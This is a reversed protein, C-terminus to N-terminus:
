RLFPGTRKPDQLHRKGKRKKAYDDFYKDKVSDYGEKQIRKESAEKAMDMMDGLSNNKNRTKDVFEKSSMPNVRGDVSFNFPTYLRKWEVGNEDVYVHPEDMKQVVDIVEETEPHFYSYLAM